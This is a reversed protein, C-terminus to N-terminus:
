SNSATQIANLTATASVQPAPSAPTATAFCSIAVPQAAGSVTTPLVLPITDSASGTYSGGLAMTAAGQSAPAGPRSLGCQVAVTQAAGGPDVATVNVDGLVLYSSGAQSASLSQSAIQTPNAPTADVPVATSTAAGYENPLVPTCTVNGSLAVSQIAGISCSGTLRLQVQSSNVQRAGVAGAIIKAPGVSNPKLKANGVSFNQLQVTGVSHPPVRLAAWSAGGLAVFLALFSVVLAASPRRRMLSRLSM